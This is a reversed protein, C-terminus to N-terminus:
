GAAPTTSSSPPTGLHDSLVYKTAPTADDPLPTGVRITAVRAGGAMVHLTNNEITGTPTQTFYEFMDTSTSRPSPSRAATVVKKIRTGATDYLYTATM